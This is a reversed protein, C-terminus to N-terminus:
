KPRPVDLIKGLTGYENGGLRGIPDIKNAHIKLRGDDARSVCDDNVYVSKVEGFILAQPANGVEQVQYRRCALAVACDTLRPLRSDPMPSTELRLREVESEGLPLTRSSETVLTAHRSSPIHVVFDTRDIINVRTDKETKDPKLGISLMILPPDSCIGNFYSFPALNLNGDPNESLVWAVPRPVVTQIMTHYIQNPSLQSFDLEM